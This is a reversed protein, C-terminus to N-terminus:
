SFPHFHLKLNEETGHRLLMRSVMHQLKYSQAIYKLLEDTVFERGAFVEIRGDSRGVALKAM